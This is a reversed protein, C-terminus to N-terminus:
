PTCGNQLANGIAIGNVAECGNVANIKCAGNQCHELVLWPAVVLKRSLFRIVSLPILRRL